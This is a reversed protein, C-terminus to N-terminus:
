NNDRGNQKVEKEKKLKRIVKQHHSLELKANIDNVVESRIKHIM